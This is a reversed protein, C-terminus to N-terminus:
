LKLRMEPLVSPSLLTIMYTPKLYKLCKQNVRDGGMDTKVWGPHISVCLIEDEKLEMATHATLMNLAAQSFM